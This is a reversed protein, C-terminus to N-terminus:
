RAQIRADQGPGQQIRLPRSGASECGPLPQVSYYNLNYRWSRHAKEVCLLQRQESAQRWFARASITRDLVPFMRAAAWATGAAMGLAILAVAIDRRVRWAIFGAAVLAPVGAAWAAGAVSAHTIGREIAAPLVAAIVPLAALLAACAALLWRPRKAEAVATGILAAAAPLLPLVYGPLKNRSLSFFVLGFLVVSLLARRRADGETRFVLPALPTWPFLLAAFVPIYFWFPQVHGLADTAFRGFHHLVFFDWLFNGGQRATVLAYWPAAVAACALAPIWADRWRKRAYWALPAALVLPVLGKALVALGLMAGAPVLGRRDGRAIWPLFLLVAASFTAALPVDTVAVRTYALWAASSGLVATSFAAARAGFERRLAWFLFGLFGISLLALPLRPALEEGLGAKFGAATMWYLLPPKEFWPEGWLRPTIWDGSRAMERGIAAYRPEDPGILGVGNLEFFFLLFAAVGAVVLWLPASRRFM